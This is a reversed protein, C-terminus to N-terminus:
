TMIVAGLPGYRGNFASISAALAFGPSSAKAEAPMPVEVCM